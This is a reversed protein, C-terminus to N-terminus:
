NRNGFATGSRQPASLQAINRAIEKIVLSKYKRFRRIKGTINEETEVEDGYKYIQKLFNIRQLVKYKAM